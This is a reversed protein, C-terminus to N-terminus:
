GESKQNCNLKVLAKIYKEVIKERTIDALKECEWEFKAVNDVFKRQMDVFLGKFGDLAKQKADDSNTFNTCNKNEWEKEKILFETLLGPLLNQLQTEHTGEHV